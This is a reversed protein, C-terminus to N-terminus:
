LKTGNFIAERIDAALLRKGDCKKDPKFKEPFFCYDAKEYGKVLVGNTAKVM